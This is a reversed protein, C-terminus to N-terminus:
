STVNKVLESQLGKVAREDRREVKEASDRWQGYEEELPLLSGPEITDVKMEPIM